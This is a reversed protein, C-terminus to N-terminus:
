LKTTSRGGWKNYNTVNVSGKRPGPALKWVAVLLAASGLASGVGSMAAAVQAMGWFLHEGGYAAVGAGIGTAAIRQAIPDVAPWPTLDRPPTAEVCLMQSRPIAISQNPNPTRCWFWQSTYATFMVAAAASSASRPSLAPATM